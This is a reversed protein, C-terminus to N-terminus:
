RLKVFEEKKSFGKSKLFKRLQKKDPDFQLSSDGTNETIAKLNRIEELDGISCLCLKGRTYELKQVEWGSYYQLNLFYYGKDKRLLNKDSICFLTDQLHYPSYLTDNITVICIKENTKKNFLTDNILMCHQMTDLERRHMVYKMNFGRTITKDTITIVSSDLMSLYQGLMKKPFHDEDKVDMPQPHEFTVAPGGCGLIFLCAFALFCHNIRM